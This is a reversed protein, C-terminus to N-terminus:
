AYTDLQGGLGDGRSVSDGASQRRKAAAEILKV